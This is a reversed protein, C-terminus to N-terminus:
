ALEMSSSRFWLRFCYPCGYVSINNRYHVSYLEVQMDGIHEGNDGICHSCAKSEPHDRLGIIMEETIEHIAPLSIRSQDSPPM